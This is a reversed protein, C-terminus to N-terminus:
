RDQRALNWQAHIRSQLRDPHPDLLVVSREGRLNRALGNIVPLQDPTYTEMIRLAEQKSLEIGEGYYDMLFGMMAPWTGEPPNSESGFLQRNVHLYPESPDPHPIDDSSAGKRVFHKTDDGGGFANFFTNEFLGYYVPPRHEPFPPINIKPHNGADAWLWGLLNDLARNELMLVVIHRIGDLSM